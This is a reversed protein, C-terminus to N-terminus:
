DNRKLFELMGDLSRANVVTEKTLRAKMAHSVGIDMHNLMEINHADTNIFIKVGNKQAKKLNEVSLDLRNPNSNLELATDTEKALEILLDIDADYGDRRGILRGTPHAILDVHPNSLATKLREM